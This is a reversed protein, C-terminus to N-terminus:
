DSGKCTGFYTETGTETAFMADGKGGPTVNLMAFGGDPLTGNLLWRGGGMESARAEFAPRDDFRVTLFPLTGDIEATAQATVFGTSDHQRDHACSVGLAAATGPLAAVAVFGLPAFPLRLSM